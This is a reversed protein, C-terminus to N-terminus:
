VLQSCIAERFAFLLKIIALLLPVLTIFIATYYTITDLNVLELNWGTPTLLRVAMPISNVLTGSHIEASQLRLIHTQLDLLQSILALWNIPTTNDLVSVSCFFAFVFSVCSLPTTATTQLHVQGPKVQLYILHLTKM